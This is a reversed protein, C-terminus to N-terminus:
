ATTQIAYMGRVCANTFEAGATTAASTLTPSSLLSCMVVVLSLTKFISLSKKELYKDLDKESPLDNANAPPAM